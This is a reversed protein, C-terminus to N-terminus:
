KLEMSRARNREEWADLLFFPGWLHFVYLWVERIVDPTATSAISKDKNIGRLEYALRKRNKETKRPHRKKKKKKYRQRTEEWNGKIERM